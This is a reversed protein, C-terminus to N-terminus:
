KWGDFSQDRDIWGLQFGALLHRRNDDFRHHHIELRASESLEQDLFLELERLTENCDAM